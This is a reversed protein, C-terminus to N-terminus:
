SDSSTRTSYEGRLQSVTAVLDKVLIRQGAMRLEAPWQRLDIAKTVFKAVDRAATMCIAVTSNNDKDYAPAQAQMTRANLIYDGEGNFGSTGGISAQALGGPQFREFFIGCVFRTSEIFEKYHNLWQLALTRGRDLPDNAPRHGPPGEFEAPAFRRVRVSVAAKILEIQPSGTVTSIVTDVGRLAFKLSENDRYDVVIVQFGRSTLQPKDQQLTLESTGALEGQLTMLLCRFLLMNTSRPTALLM